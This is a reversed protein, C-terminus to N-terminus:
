NFLEAAVMALAEKTSFNSPIFSAHTRFKVKTVIEGSVTKQNSYVKAEKYFDKITPAIVTKM